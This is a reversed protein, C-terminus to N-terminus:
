GKRLREIRQRLDDAEARLADLQRANSAHERRNTERSAQLRRREHEAARDGGGARELRDAVRRGEHDLEELSRELERQTGEMRGIRERLVRMRREIEDGSAM